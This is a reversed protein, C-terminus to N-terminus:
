YSQGLFFNNHQDVYSQEAPGANNRLARAQEPVIESADTALAGMIDEIFDDLRMALPHDPPGLLGTGVWPPVVEQVSVRSDKLMFRQSLIYSHLAAKTASYVAFASLPTFAYASSMYVLHARAQRRLLPMLASTMRIPGLLNTAVQIAAAEDDMRNGPDDALMVGANNILVNLGPHREVVSSAAVAISSIRGVDLLMTEVGPCHDAVEDLGSRRRGAVIVTNGLAHFAKALGAGIGSGGGTILVTNGTLQM